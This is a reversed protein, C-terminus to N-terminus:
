RGVRGVSAADARTVMASEVSPLYLHVGRLWRESGKGDQYLNQYVVEAYPRTLTPDIKIMKPNSVFYAHSHLYGDNDVSQFTLDAPQRWEADSHDRRKPYVIVVINALGDLRERRCEDYPLEPQPAPKGGQSDVETQRAEDRRVSAIIVVASLGAITAALVAITRWGPPRDNM